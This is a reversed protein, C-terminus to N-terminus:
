IRTAPQHRQHTEIAVVIRQIADVAIAVQAFRQAPGDDAVLGLQQSRRWLAVQQQVAVRAAVEAAHQPQVAVVDQMGHMRIRAAFGVEVLHHEIGGRLLRRHHTIAARHGRGVPEAGRLRLHRRDGFLERAAVDADADGGGCPQHGLAGAGQAIRAPVQVVWAIAAQAADEFLLRLHRRRRRFGRQRALQREGVAGGVAHLHAAEQQQRRAGIGRAHRQDRLHVAARDIMEVGTIVVADGLQQDIAAIRHELGIEAAGGAMAAVVRQRRMAVVAIAAHLLVDNFAHPIQQRLPDAVLLPDADDAM